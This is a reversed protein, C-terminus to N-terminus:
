KLNLKHMLNDLARFKSRPEVLPKKLEGLKKLTELDLVRQQVNLWDKRISVNRLTLRDLKSVEDELASLKSEGAHSPVRRLREAKELRSRARLRIASLSVSAKMRGSFHAARRPRTHSGPIKALM